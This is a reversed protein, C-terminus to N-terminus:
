WCNGFGYPIGLIAHKIMEFTTVTPPPSTSKTSIHINWVDAENERWVFWILVTAKNGRWIFWVFVDAENERWFLFFVRSFWSFCFFVRSVIHSGRPGMYDTSNKKPKRSTKPLKPWFGFLFELFCFFVRSVIHSGVQGWTTQPTKNKNPKRSTKPVRPWFGLKWLEVGWPSWSEIM